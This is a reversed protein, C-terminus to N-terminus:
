HLAFLKLKFKIEHGNVEFILKAEPLINEVELKTMLSNDNVAIRYMVSIHCCSSHALSDTEISLISALINQM